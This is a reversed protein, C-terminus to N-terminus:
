PNTNRADVRNTGDATLAIGPVLPLDGRCDPPHVTSGLVEPLNASPISLPRPGRTLIRICRRAPACGRITPLPCMLFFRLIHMSIAATFRQIVIM